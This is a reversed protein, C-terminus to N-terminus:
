VCLAISSLSLYLSLSLSCLASLSLSGPSTPSHRFSRLDCLSPLVKRERRESEENKKKGRREEGRRTEGIDLYRACSASGNRGSTVVIECSSLIASRRTGLFPLPKLCTSPPIDALSFFCCVFFLSFFSFIGSTAWHKSPIICSIPKVLLAFWSWTKMCRTWPSVQNCCLMYYVNIKKFVSSFFGVVFVFCSSHAVMLFCASTELLPRSTLWLRWQKVLLLNESKERREKEKEMM